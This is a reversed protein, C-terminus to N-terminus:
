QYRHVKDIHILYAAQAYIHKQRRFLRIRFEYHSVINSQQNLNYILNKLPGRTLKQPEAGAM